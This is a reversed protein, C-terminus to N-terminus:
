NTLQEKDTNILKILREKCLRRKKYTFGTSKYDLETTIEDIKYGKAVLKLLAQCEKSLKAVNKQYLKIRKEKEIAEDLELYQDNLNLRDAELSDEISQFYKSDRERIVKLWQYKCVTYFYTLFSNKVVLNEQKIQEYIVVIGDQFIDWADEEAGGYRLVFSKITNFYKDYVYQIVTNDNEFIGKLIKDSTLENL